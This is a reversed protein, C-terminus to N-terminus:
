HEGLLPVEDGLVDEVYLTQVLVIIVVALPTALLVGVAGAGVGGILQVSILAAPPVHVAREQVLPTIMYSELVQVTGYVLVVYVVKTLSLLSAVLLAPVVALVPGLYPVFSSLAAVLGLAIPSPIGALSLGLATLVGVIVMMIVRGTLWWRLARGIAYIVEQARQRRSPPVMRVVGDVYWQPNIAGYIGIFLVIFTNVLIGVTSRFVNTVGGLVSPVTSMLQSPDLLRRVWENQQINARLRNTLRETANPLLAALESLQESIDPGTLIWLIAFLSVLGAITLLLAVSRPLFTNASLGQTAGALFVALLIGAFITLLVEAFQTMLYLVLLLAAGAGAAAYPRRVLLSDRSSTSM